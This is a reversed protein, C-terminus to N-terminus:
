ASYDDHGRGPQCRQSWSGSALEITGDGRAEFRLVFRVATVSDDALHETTVTVTTGAADPEVVIRM